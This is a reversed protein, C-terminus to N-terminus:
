PSVQSSCTPECVGHIHKHARSHKRRRQVETQSDKEDFVDQQPCEEERVAKITEAVDRLRKHRKGCTSPCQCRRMTYHHGNGELELTEM